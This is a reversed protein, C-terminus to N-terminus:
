SLQSNWPSLKRSGRRSPFKFKNRRSAKQFEERFSEPYPTNIWELTQETHPFLLADEALPIQAKVGGLSENLTSFKYDEANRVLGADVPNRYLYKYVHKFAHDTEILSSFYPAGYTQNIRGAHKTIDLSSERMLYQMAQSLNGNPTSVLLHFHNNMLVFAHIKIEYAHGVWYLHDCFIDWVEYIPVKFWEKNICRAGIFSPHTSSFSRIRTM